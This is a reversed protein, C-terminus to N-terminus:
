WNEYTCTRASVPPPNQVALYSRVQSPHLELVVSNVKRKRQRVFLHKLLTRDFFFFVLAKNEKGEQMKPPNARSADHPTTSFSSYGPLGTV